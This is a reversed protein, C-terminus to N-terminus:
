EIGKNVKRITEILESERLEKRIFHVRGGAIATSTIKKNINDSWVIIHANDPLPLNTIFRIGTMDEWLHNGTIIVEPKFLRVREKLETIDPQFVVNSFHNQVLMWELMSGQANNMDCILIKREMSKM